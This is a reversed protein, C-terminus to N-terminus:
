AQILDLYEMDSFTFPTETKGIEGAKWDALTLDDFSVNKLAIREAGYSDPDDLKSIITVRIDKGQTILQMLKTAMRSNVKHMTVSGTGEWGVVKKENSMQGVMAVDEKKLSIKAQLGICEGILDSDIWVQGWKGNIVRKPDLM